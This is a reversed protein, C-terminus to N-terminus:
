TRKAETIFAVVRAPDKRGPATELRSSADVGWPRVAAVASAVNEPGLGGALVFRERSGDLLRWDFATGGGGHRDSMARDLIPVTGAPAASLDPPAAGVPIPFLVQLGAAVAVAAAERRHRGHPQVMDAGTEEALGLLADPELDVTVIAAAVPAEAILARATEPDVCRPSAPALIFGVADAGAGAAVAVDDRTTLGCVKVWVTM